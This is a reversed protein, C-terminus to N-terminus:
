QILELQHAELICHLVTCHQTFNKTWVLAISVDFIFKMYMISHHYFLSFLAFNLDVMKRNKGKRKKLKILEDKLPNYATRGPQYSISKKPFWICAFCNAGDSSNWLSCVHTHKKIWIGINNMTVVYLPNKGLAVKPFQFFNANALIRM